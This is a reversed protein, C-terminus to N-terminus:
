DGSLRIINHKRHKELFNDIPIFVSNLTNIYKFDGHKIFLQVTAKACSESYGSMIATLAAAIAQKIQDAEFGSATRRVTKGEPIDIVVSKSMEEAYEVVIKKTYNYKKM